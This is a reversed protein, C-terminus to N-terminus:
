SPTSQTKSYNEFVTNSNAASNGCANVSFVILTGVWLTESVPEGGLLFGATTVSTGSTSQPGEGPPFRTGGQRMGPAPQRHQPCCSARGQGGETAWFHRGWLGNKLNPNNNIPLYSFTISSPNVSRTVKCKALAPFSCSGPSTQKSSPLSVLGSNPPPHNETKRHEM